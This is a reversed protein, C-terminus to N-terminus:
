DLFKQPNQLNEIETEIQRMIQSPPVNLAKSIKLFVVLTPSKLGRELQSVYTRHVGALEALKEQSIGEARRLRQIVNGLLGSVNQM